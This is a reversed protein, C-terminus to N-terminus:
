ESFQIKPHTISKKFKQISIMLIVFNFPIPASPALNTECDSSILEDSVSNFRPYTISKKQIKQISIMLIVFHFLIPASPALNTECDSSILEDSM